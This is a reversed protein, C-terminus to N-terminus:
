MLLKDTATNVPPKHNSASRRKTHKYLSRRQVQFGCENPCAVLVYQCEGEVSGAMLHQELKGLEREWKCGLAKNNCRIQLALVKRQLFLDDTTQLPVKQMASMAEKRMELPRGSCPLSTQRLLFQNAPIRLYKLRSQSINAAVSIPKSHIRLYKLRSQVSINM